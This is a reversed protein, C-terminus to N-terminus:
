AFMFICYLARILNAFETIGKRYATNFLAPNFAGRLDICNVTTPRRQTYHKGTLQQLEKPKSINRPDLRQSGSTRPRARTM